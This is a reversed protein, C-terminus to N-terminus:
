WLRSAGVKPYLVINQAKVSDKVENWAFRGVVTLTPLDPRDRWCELLQRTHKLGSKGKVHLFAFQVPLLLLLLLVPSDLDIHLKDQVVACLTPNCSSAALAVQRGCFGAAFGQCQQVYVRVGFGGKVLSLQILVRVKCKRTADPPLDVTPDSSTHGMFWVGAKYHKRAVHQQLATVCVETKCQAPLCPRLLAVASLRIQSCGARLRRVFSSGPALYACVSCQTGSVCCHAQCAAVARMGARGLHQLPIRGFMDHSKAGYKSVLFADMQKHLQTDANWLHEANVLMLNLVGPQRSIFEAYMTEMLLRATAPGCYSNYQPMDDQAGILRADMHLVYLMVDTCMGVGREEKKLMIDMVPCQRHLAACCLVAFSPSARAAHVPKLLMRLQQVLLRCLADGEHPM